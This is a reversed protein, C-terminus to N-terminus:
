LGDAPEKRSLHKAIILRQIESTGEYIRLARVDRYLREIVNGVVVGSGGHIQLSQDVIRQAAETAFLKAMSTKLPAEPHHRDTERASGQFFGEGGAPAPSLESAREGLELADLELEGIHGRVEFRRAQQNVLGSRHPVLAM